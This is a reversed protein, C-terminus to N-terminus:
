IGTQIKHIHLYTLTHDVLGGTKSEKHTTARLNSLESTRVLIQRDDDGGGYPLGLGQSRRAHSRQLRKSLYDVEPLGATTPPPVPVPDGNGVAKCLAVPARCRSSTRAPHIAMQRM